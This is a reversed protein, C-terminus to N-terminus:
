ETPRSSAAVNSLHAAAAAVQQGVWPLRTGLRYSPASVNLAAVIRGSFDRVPAAAGVLEADFEGDVLAFGKAQAEHVRRILEEVDAPARPGPGPFPLDALLSRIDDDSHDFLLVRGTSTCHVPATRGVWGVAEIVQQSSESLITFVDRGNLVSLHVREKTVDALRRMVPAALLLLRQDGAQAALTFLRWGLRHLGDDTREVLGLEVLPRLQRSVTSKDKGLARGLGAVTLGGSRDGSSSSLAELTALLKAAASRESDVMSRDHSAPDNIAVDHQM